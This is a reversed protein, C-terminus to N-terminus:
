WGEMPNEMYVQVQRRIENTVNQTRATNTSARGFWRWGNGTAQVGQHWARDDFAVLQHMPANWRKLREFRIHAEVLPHWEKYLIEGLPIHTFEATGLAFETPCVNDGAMAMVHQSRYSPNDYEPQGDSRERPVDDHHFGPICPFWGPMLMHVRTDIVWDSLHSAPYMEMLATIFSKTIPGGVSEAFVGDCNFLMVEEKVQDAHYGDMPPGVTVTSNFIYSM